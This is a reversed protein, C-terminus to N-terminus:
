ANEVGKKSSGRFHTQNKSSKRICNRYNYGIV